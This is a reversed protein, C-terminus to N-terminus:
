GLWTKFEKVKERAVVVDQNELGKIRLLLRSNSHVLIEDLADVAVIYKRSIKFFRTADLEGVMQDLAQDISYNRGSKTLIFTGKARSYFAAIETIPISKLKEGVKILFRTKYSKSKINEIAKAISTIDPLSNSQFNRKFKEIAQVLEQEDIPKLLYDVGNVKFAKIAYQNYATTFIIPVNSKVQRFIEFSTGDGLEIDSFILQIDTRSEIVRISDAISDTQAIIMFEPAIKKILRVLRGAARPEDEIILVNM